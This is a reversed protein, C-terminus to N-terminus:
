ADVMPINWRVNSYYTLLTGNVNRLYTDADFLGLAFPGRNEYVMALGEQFWSGPELGHLFVHTMEHSLLSQVSAYDADVGMTAMLAGPLATGSKSTLTNNRFMVTFPPLQPDDFFGSLKRYALGSWELLEAQPFKSTQATSASRYPGPTAPDAPARLLRGAMFYTSRLASLSVVGDDHPLSDLASADAPYASLDWHM